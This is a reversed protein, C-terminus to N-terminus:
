DGVPEDAGDELSDGGPLDVGEELWEGGLEEGLWDGDPADM